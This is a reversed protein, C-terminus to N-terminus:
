CCLEVANRIMSPNVDIYKQTVAISKHGAIAALTRVGVGKNALNTIMSRRGSHSSAGEVGARRYLWFFHQTLTNATFALRTSTHFFAVDPNRVFRTALYKALEEQLKQSIFVTRPFGGKTQCASLRIESKITGDANVVDGMKLAAIEGVRMAAWLSMFFMARNREKYKRLEIYSLVQDIEVTTLTKAQAMHNEKLYGYTYNTTMNGFPRGFNAM